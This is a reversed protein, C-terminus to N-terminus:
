EMKEASDEKKEALEKEEGCAIRAAQYISHARVTRDILVGKVRYVGWGIDKIVAEGGVVFGGCDFHRNGHDDKWRYELGFVSVVATLLGVFMFVIVFKKM